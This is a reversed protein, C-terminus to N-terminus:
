PEMGITPLTPPLAPPPARRRGADMAAGAEIGALHGEASNTQHGPFIYPLRPSAFTHEPTPSSPLPM